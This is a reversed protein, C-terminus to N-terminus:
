KTASTVLMRLGFDSGHAIPSQVFPLVKSISLEDAGRGKLWDRESRDVLVM